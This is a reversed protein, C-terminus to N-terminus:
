FHNSGTTDKSLLEGRRSRCIRSGNGERVEAEVANLRTRYEGAMLITNQYTESAAPTGDEYWQNLQVQEKQNYIEEKMPVGSTYNERKAVLQGYEYTEIKHITSSNPFSYTTEGHLIGKAYSMAVM